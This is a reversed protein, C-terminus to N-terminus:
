AVRLECPDWKFCNDSLLVGKQSFIPFQLRKLGMKELIKARLGEFNSIKLGCSGVLKSIKLECTVFGEKLPM